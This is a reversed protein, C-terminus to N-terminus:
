KFSNKNKLVKMVNKQNIKLKKAIDINAMGLLKLERIKPTLKQYLPINENITIKISVPILSITRIPVWRARM